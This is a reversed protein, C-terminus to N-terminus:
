CYVDELAEEPAPYASGLAFRAAEEVEASARKEMREVEEQSLTNDRLM